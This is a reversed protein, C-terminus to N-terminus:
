APVISGATISAASTTILRAPEGVRPLGCEFFHDRLRRSLRTVVVRTSASAIAAESRLGANRAPLAIAQYPSWPSSTTVSSVPLVPSLQM